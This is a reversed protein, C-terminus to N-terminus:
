CPARVTTRSYQSMTPTLTAHVYHNHRSVFHNQAMMWIPSVRIFIPGQCNNELITVSHTHATCADIVRSYSNQLWFWFYVSTCFLWWMLVQPPIVSHSYPRVKGPSGRVLALTHVERKKRPSHHCRGRVLAIIYIMCIDRRTLLPPVCIISGLGVSVAFRLPLEELGLLSCKTPYICLM